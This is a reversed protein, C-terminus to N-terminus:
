PGVQVECKTEGMLGEDQEGAGYYNERDEETSVLVM